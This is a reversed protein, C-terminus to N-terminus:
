ALDRSARGLVRIRTDSGGIMVEVEDDRISPVRGGCTSCFSRGSYTAVFNALQEFAERPWVAFASFASGSAKRCDGCHCIGVRLPEGTVRFKVARCLCSGSRFPANQDAMFDNEKAGKLPLYALGNESLWGCTTAFALRLQCM